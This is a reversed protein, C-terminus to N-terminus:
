LMRLKSILRYNAVIDSKTQFHNQIVWQLCNCSIKMKMQTPQILQLSFHHCMRFFKFPPNNQHHIIDSKELMNKKGQDTSIPLPTEKPYIPLYLCKSSTSLPSYNPSSLLTTYSFQHIILRFLTVCDVMSIIWWELKESHTM